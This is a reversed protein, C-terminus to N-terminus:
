YTLGMLVTWKAELSPSMAITAIIRYRLHVAEIHKSIITYDFKGEVKKRLSPLWLYLLLNNLTAVGASREGVCVLLQHYDLFIENFFQKM